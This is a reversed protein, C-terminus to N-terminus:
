RDKYFQKLEELAKTGMKMRTMVTEYGEKGWDEEDGEKTSGGRPRRGATVWYANCFDYDADTSHTEPEFAGAGAGSSSHRSHSSSSRRSQSTPAPM